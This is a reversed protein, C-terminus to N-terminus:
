RCGSEAGADVGIPRVVFEADKCRLACGIFSIVLLTAVILKM